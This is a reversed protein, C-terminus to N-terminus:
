LGEGMAAAREAKFDLHKPNGCHPAYWAFLLRRVRALRKAHVRLFHWLVSSGRSKVLAIFGVSYLPSNWVWEFRLNRCGDVLEAWEADSYRARQIAENAAYELITRFSEHVLHRVESPWCVKYRLSEDRGPGLVLEWAARAAAVHSNDPSSPLPTMHIRNQRNDYFHEFGPPPRLWADDDMAGLVRAWGRRGRRERVPCKAPM